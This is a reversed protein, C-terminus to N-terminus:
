NNKETRMKGFAFGAVKIFTELGETEGIANNLPVNDGYLFAIVRGESIIPAVIVEDPWDGGLRYIIESNWKNTELRGKFRNKSDLCIKFVSDESLPIKIKRIEDDPSKGPLVIGCQGWGIIEDKKILFILTRNLIESAFRLILLIIEGGSSPSSLEDIMANLFQLDKRLGNDNEGVSKELATEKQIEEQFNSNNPSLSDPSNEDIQGSLEGPKKEDRREEDSIRAGELLLYEASMGSAFVISEDGPLGLEFHFFGKKWSFFEKVVATIHRRLEKEILEKSVGLECLITGIPKKINQEKQLSVAKEFLEQSIVGRKVLIPGFSGLSPLSGFIIQGKSFFVYGSEEKRKISLEGSRKSLSLIQLIDALGLDELQGELSM